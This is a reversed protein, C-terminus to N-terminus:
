EHGRFVDAVAVVLVGMLDKSLSEAHADNLVKLTDSRINKASGDLSYFASTNDHKQEVSESTELLQIGNGHVDVRPISSFSM